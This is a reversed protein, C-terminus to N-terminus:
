KARENSVEEKQKKYNERALELATKADVKLSEMIRMAIQLITEKRM